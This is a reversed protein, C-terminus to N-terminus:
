DNSAGKEAEAPATPAIAALAESLARRLGDRERRLEILQITLERIRCEDSQCFESSEDILSRCDFFARLPKRYSM